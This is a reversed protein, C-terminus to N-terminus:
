LTETVDSKLINKLPRCNISVSDHLLEKCTALAKHHYKIPNQNYRSLSNTIFEFSTAIKIRIETFNENTADNNNFLAHM